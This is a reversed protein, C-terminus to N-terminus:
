RGIDKPRFVVPLSIWVDKPGDRDEGPKWNMSQVVKIATSDLVPNGSSEQVSVNTTSGDTRVMAHVLVTASSGAKVLRTAASDVMPRIHILNRLQPAVTYPTFDQAELATTSAVLSLAISFTLNSLTV